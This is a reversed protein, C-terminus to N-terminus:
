VTVPSDSKWRRGRLVDPTPLQGTRRHYQWCAPCLGRRLPGRGPCDATSCTAAADRLDRAEAAVAANSERVREEHAERLEAETPEPTSGAVRRRSGFVYVTPGLSDLDVLGSAGTGGCSRCSTDFEQDPPTPLVRNAATASARRGERAQWDELNLTMEVPRVSGDRHRVPRVLPEHWPRQRRYWDRTSGIVPGARDPARGSNTGDTGIAGVDAVDHAVTDVRLSRKLEGTARVGRPLDARAAELEAESWIPPPLQRRGSPAPDEPPVANM